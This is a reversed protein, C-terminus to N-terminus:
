DPLFEFAFGRNIEEHDALKIKIAGDTNFIALSSGDVKTSSLGIDWRWKPYCVIKHNKKMYFHVALYELLSPTNAGNKLCYDWCFQMSNLQEPNLGLPTHVIHTSILLTYSKKTPTNDLKQLISDDINVTTGADKINQLLENITLGEKIAIRAVSKVKTDENDWVSPAVCNFLRITDWNSPIIENEITIGLAKADLIALQAPCIKTFDMLNILKIVGSNWQVSIPRFSLCELPKEPKNFIEAFISCVLDLPLMSFTTQYSEIAITGRLEERLQMLCNGLNSSKCELFTVGTALLKALLEPNQGFKARLVHMLVDCQNIHKANPDEWSYAREKTMPNHRMFAKLEEIGGCEAIQKMLHPQDTYKQAHFCTYANPYHIGGFEFRSPYLHSFECAADEESFSFLVHETTLLEITRDRLYADLDPRSEQMGFINKLALVQETNLQLSEILQQPASTDGQIALTIANTLINEVSFNNTDIAM